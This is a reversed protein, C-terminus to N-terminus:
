WNYGIGFQVNSSLKRERFDHNIISYRLGVRGFVSWKSNLNYRISPQLLLDIGFSQNIQSERGGTEVIQNLITGGYIDLTFQNLQFRRGILIPMEVYSVRKPLNVSLTDIDLRIISDHVINTITDYVYGGQNPGQVVWASDIGVIEEREVSIPTYSTDYGSPVDAGVRIPDFHVNYAYVGINILLNQRKWDVDVGAGYGIFGPSYNTLVQGAINISAPKFGIKTFSSTSEVLPTEINEGELIANESITTDANKQSLEANIHSNTESLALLQDDKVTRTESPKLSSQTENLNEDKKNIEAAARTNVLTNKTNDFTFNEEVVNKAMVTALKKNSPKNVTLKKGKITSVRFPQKIKKRSNVKPISSKQGVYKESKKSTVFHEDPTTNNESVREVNLTKQIGETERELVENQNDKIISITQIDEVKATTPSWIQYTIVGLTAILSLVLIIIPWGAVKRKSTNLDPHAEIKSFMAEWDSSLPTEAPTSNIKEVIKKWISAM